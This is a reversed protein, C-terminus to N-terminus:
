GKRHRLNNGTIEKGNIVKKIENIDFSFFSYKKRLEPDVGYAHQNQSMLVGLEKNYEEIDNEYRRIKSLYNKWDDTEEIPFLETFNEKALVTNRKMAGVKRIRFNVKNQLWAIMEEKPPTYDAKDITLEIYYRPFNVRVLAVLYDFYWRYKQLIFPAIDGRYYICKATAREESFM